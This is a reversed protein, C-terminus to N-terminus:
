QKFYLFVIHVKLKPILHCLSVKEQGEKRCVALYESFLKVIMSRPFTSIIWFTSM